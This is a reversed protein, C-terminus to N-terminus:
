NTLFQPLVGSLQRTFETLAQLAHDGDETRVATIRVLAGDTRNKTIADWVLYIKGRYESAFIRENAHYWYLVDQQIGDKEVVYHNAELVPRSATPAPIRVVESRVPEWGSGPLCNKPSHLADGSKQSQYYAVFLGVRMGDREYIRFLYDDARLVRREGESLSPLERGTWGGVSLPFHDLRQRLPVLRGHSLLRVQVNAGLLLVLLCGFRLSNSM